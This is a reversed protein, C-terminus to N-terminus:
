TVNLIDIPSFLGDINRICVTSMCLDNKINNLKAEKGLCYFARECCVFLDKKVFMDVFAIFIDDGHSFM